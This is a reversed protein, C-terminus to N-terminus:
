VADVDVDVDGHGEEHVTHLPCREEGSLSIDPTHAFKRPKASAPM